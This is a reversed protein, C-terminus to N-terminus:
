MDAILPLYGIEDELGIKIEEPVYKLSHTFELAAQRSIKNPTAYLRWIDPFPMFEGIDTAPKTKKHDINTNYLLMNQRADVIAALNYEQKIRLGRAKVTRM